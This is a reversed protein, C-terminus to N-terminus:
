IRNRAKFKRRERIALYVLGVFPLLFIVAAVIMDQVRYGGSLSVATAGITLAGFLLLLLTLVTWWIPQWWRVQGPRPGPYARIEGPMPHWNPAFQVPGSPVPPPTPYGTAPYRLPGSPQNPLEDAAAWKVTPPATSAAPQRQGHLAARAATALDGASAYRHAPYKAMGRGIVADLTAPVQPNGLSPRPPPATLHAAMQQAPGTQGFPLEGTLCEFLLCALSYIDSRLDEEGSFREPAMYAYTGVAVGTSTIAAHGGGRAIGFDILYAFGSPLTLVNSPKVDRHVLGAAHAVDLAEAVQAVLDVAREPTLAGHEHLIKGLDHGDVREMEIYLRGDLEGFSHIPVVHPGRLKVALRAEREFRRRYDDDLALEPPLVKLAVERGLRTDEALWVQGMGGRGLLSLLRYHGLVGDGPVRGGWIEGSKASTLM